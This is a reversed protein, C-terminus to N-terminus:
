KLKDRESQAGAEFAIRRILEKFEDMQSNFHISLQQAHRKALYALLAAVIAAIATAIQGITGLIITTDSM